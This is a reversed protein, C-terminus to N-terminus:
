RSHIPIGLARRRLSDLANIRQLASWHPSRIRPVQSNAHDLKHHCHSGSTVSGFVKLDARTGRDAPQLAKPFIPRRFRHGAAPASGRQLLIRLLNKSKDALLPVKRQILENRDQTLPTDRRAAACQRSEESAMADGEFFTQPRLFALAGVHSARSSAPDALLTPKIGAAEYKDVLRCDGGIHHAQVTPAGASFAQDRVRGHPVPLRHRENSAQTLSADHSRHENLARHVAFCEQSVNFLTQRRRELTSVNHHSIIHGEVLDSTYLLSEATNPALRLNRGCYEGSRLGMSNAKWGAFVQKRLAASRVISPSCRHIRDNM